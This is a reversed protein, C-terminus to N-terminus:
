VSSVSVYKLREDEFGLLIQESSVNNTRVNAIYRVNTKIGAQLPHPLRHLLLQNCLIHDTCERPEIQFTWTLM